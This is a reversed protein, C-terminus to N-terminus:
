RGGMWISVRMALRERMNKMRYLLTILYFKQKILLYCILKRKKNLCAGRLAYLFNENEGIEKMKQQRRKRNWPSKICLQKIYMVTLNVYLTNLIKMQKVNNVFRRCYQVSTEYFHTLAEFYNEHFKFVLTGHSKIYYNYFMNGTLVTKKSAALVQVSFTMDECISFKEHFSIRNVELLDRRILKNWPPNLIEKEVLVIFWHKFIEKGNGCFDSGLSNEVMRDNDDTMYYRFSSIVLEAQYREALGVCEELMDPEITDDADVFLIYKGRARALGFNRSASVGANSRHYVTVREDKKAYSDCIRGSVDNSGDNVLIVEFRRYTQKLISDLCANIYKGANYVPVIISVTDM